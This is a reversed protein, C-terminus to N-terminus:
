QASGHEELYRLRFRPWDTYHLLAERNGARWLTLFKMGDGAWAFTKAFAIAAYAELIRDEQRWATIAAAITASLASSALCAFAIQLATM